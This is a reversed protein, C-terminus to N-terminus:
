TPLISLLRLILYHVQSLSWPSIAPSRRLLPPGLIQDYRELLRSIPEEFDIRITECSEGHCENKLWELKERLSGQLEPGPRASESVDFAELADQIVNRAIGCRTQFSEEEAGVLCPRGLLLLSLIMFNYLKKM